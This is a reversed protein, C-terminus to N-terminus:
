ALVRELNRNLGIAEAVERAFPWVKGGEALFDNFPDIVLLATRRDLDERAAAPIM